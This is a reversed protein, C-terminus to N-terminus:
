LVVRATAQDDDEACFQVRVTAPEFGLEARYAKARRSFQQQSCLKQSRADLAAYGAPWDQMLIAEFFQKVRQRAGTDPPLEAGRGCGSLAAVVLLRCAHRLSM